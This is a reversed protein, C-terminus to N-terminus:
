KKAEPVRGRGIWQSQTIVKCEKSDTGCFEMPFSVLEYGPAMGETRPRPEPRWVALQIFAREKADTAGAMAIVAGAAVDKGVTIGEGIGGLHSYTAITGDSHLIDLKGNAGIQVVRGQRAARVPTAAPLHFLVAYRTYPTVAAPDDNVAAFARITGGFPFRYREPCLHRATADGISWAYGYGFKCAKNKTIATVHVLPQDTHPPVIATLPLTKDTAINYWTGPDSGLAVSVPAYGHNYATIDYAARVADQPLYSPQAVKADNVMFDYERKAKGSAKDSVPKGAMPVAPPPTSAATAGAPSDAVPLLTEPSVPKMARPADGFNAVTGSMTAYDGSPYKGDQRGYEWPWAGKVQRPGDACGLLLCGAALLPLWRGYNMIDDARKM